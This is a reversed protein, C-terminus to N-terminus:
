TFEACMLVSLQKHPQYARKAARLGANIYEKPVELQIRLPQMDALLNGESVVSTAVSTSESTPGVPDSVKPGTSAQLPKQLVPSSPHLCSQSPPTPVRSSPLM